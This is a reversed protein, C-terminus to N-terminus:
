QTILGLIGSVLNGLISASGNQYTGYTTRSYFGDEYGRRFGERFYHNYDGQEVYMGNYGYNVDRYAYSDKYNYPARDQRDAVGANYGEQYGYNV